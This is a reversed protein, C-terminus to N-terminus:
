QTVITLSGDLGCSARDTAVAGPNAPNHCGNCASVPSGVATQNELDYLQLGGDWKGGAEYAFRLALIAYKGDPTPMVDHNEVRHYPGGIDVDSHELALTSGNLVLLRDKGAQLIKTGDPTYTSRFAVTGLGSASAPALGTITNSAIVNASSVTGGVVDSMNLLYGTVAGTMTTNVGGQSAENVAVFLRSRDPSNVGHVWVYNADTTRFDEVFTRVVNTSSDLAAGAAVASKPIADIYAPYSMTMPVFHTASVGSGCYASGTAGAPFDVVADTVANANSVDVWGVHVMGQDAGGTSDRAYASYYLRSGDLRVDHFSHTQNGAGMGASLQIRGLTGVTIPATASSPDITVPVVAVHGGSTTAMYITGEYTTKPTGAPPGEDDSSCGSFTLVGYIGALSAAVSAISKLTRTNSRM